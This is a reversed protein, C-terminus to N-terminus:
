QKKSQIEELLSEVDNLLSEAKQTAENVVKKAEDKAESTSNEKGEILEEALEKIKIRYKDLRFSLKDRTNKGKDPAYLIGLAAGTLAGIVFALLNNNNRSM